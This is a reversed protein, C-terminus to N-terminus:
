PDRHNCQIRTSLRNQTPLCAAKVGDAVKIGRQWTFCCTSLDWSNSHLCRQRTPDSNQGEVTQFIPYSHPTPCEVQCEGGLVSGLVLLQSKGAPQPPSTAPSSCEPHLLSLHGHRLYSCAAPPSSPLLHSCCCYCIPSPFPTLLPKSSSVFRYRSVRSM